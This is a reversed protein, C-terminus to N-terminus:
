KDEGENMAGRVLAATTLFGILAFYAELGAKWGWLVFAILPAFGIGFAILLVIVFAIFSALKM